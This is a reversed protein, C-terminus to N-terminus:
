GRQELQTPEEEAQEKAMARLRELEAAMEETRKSELKAYKQRRLIDYIIFALLPVGIFLLMGLPRQLFMAFDGVGPLRGMYRGIIQAESVPATDEAENADGKTTFLLEGQDDSSIGIIRHTVTSGDRMFSIVDGEQLQDTETQEAFILDGVEIHGEQTGSMSGSLVVMPTMGFISPPREPDVTGKIIITLNCVLVFALLVCIVVGIKTWIGGRENKEEKEMTRTM